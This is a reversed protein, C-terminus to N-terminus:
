RIFRFLNDSSRAALVQLTAQYGTQIDALESYAKVPDAQVTETLRSDLVTKMNRVLAITDDALNQNFGVEERWRIIQDIGDKMGPMTDRIAPLDDAELATVLDDLNQFLDIDGTFVESGDFGVQIWELYGIRIDLSETSGVYTGDERFPPADMAQGGFVHRNAVETNAISLLRTRLARVEIAAAERSATDHTGNAMQVAIEWARKMVEGADDLLRDATDLYTIASETNQRFVEQDQSAASLRHVATWESPADSPRAIEVLSTAVRTGKDLQQKVVSLRDLGLNRALTPSSRPIRM